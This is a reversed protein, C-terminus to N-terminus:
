PPRECSSLGIWFIIHYSCVSYVVQHERDSDEELLEMFFIAVSTSYGQQSKIRLTTSTCNPYRGVSATISHKLYTNLLPAEQGCMFCEGKENPIQIGDM